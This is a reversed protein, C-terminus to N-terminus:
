VSRASGVPGPWPMGEDRLQELRKRAKRLKAMREKTEEIQRAADQILDDWGTLQKEKVAHNLM